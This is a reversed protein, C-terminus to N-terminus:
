SVVTVGTKNLNQLWDQSKDITWTDPYSITNKSEM